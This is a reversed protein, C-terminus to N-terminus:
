HVGFQGYKIKIQPFKKSIQMVKKIDNVNKAPPKECFVNIGSKIFDLTVKAALYTPLTIFVVDIDQKLINKYNKFFTISKSKITKKFKIDSIYLLKYNKNREIFLKRRKGVIGYGIIATKLTKTMLKLSTNSGDKLPIKM